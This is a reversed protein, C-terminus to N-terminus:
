QEKRIWGWFPNDHQHGTELYEAKLRAIEDNSYDVTPRAWLRWTSGTRCIKPCNSAASPKL